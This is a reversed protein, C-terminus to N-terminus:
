RRGKQGALKYEPLEMIAPNDELARWTWWGEALKEMVEPLKVIAPNRALALRATSRKNQALEMAWDPLLYIGPHTALEELKGAAYLQNLEVIATGEVLM